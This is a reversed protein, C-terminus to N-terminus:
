YDRLIKKFKNRDKKKIFNDKRGGEGANAKKKEKGKVIVKEFEKQEDFNMLKYLAYCQGVKLESKGLLELDDELIQNIGEVDILLSELINKAEHLDNSTKCGPIYQISNINEKTVKM